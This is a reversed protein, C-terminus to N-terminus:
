REGETGQANGPRGRSPRPGAEARDWVDASAEAGALREPTGVDLWSHETVELPLIRHGERALELYLDIISFTGRRPSLEFILPEIVHIGTFALARVAGVAERVTRRGEPARDSGRNEWGVLGRGDFLLRRQAERDQVALSAVPEGGGM